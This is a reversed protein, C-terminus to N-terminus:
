GRGCGVGVDVVGGPWAWLCAARQTGGVDNEGEWVEGQLPGSLGRGCGEVPGAWPQDNELGRGYWAGGPGAGLGEWLIVRLGSLLAVGVLRARVRPWAWWVPGGRGVKLVAEPFNRNFFRVVDKVSHSSKTRVTIMYGDGFRRSLGTAWPRAAGM